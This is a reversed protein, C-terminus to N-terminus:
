EYPVNVPVFSPATTGTGLQGSDNLGWTWLTQDAKLAVSHASGAAVAKWTQLNGVQTPSRSDTGGTGLQGKENLGWAWLTGDSHVGISHAAGGAVMGWNTDTGIQVPSIQQTSGNNGLQGDTNLGWAYLTGGSRIALSHNAGAAVSTFNLTGIRVPATVDAGQAANGVQGYTNAGWAWLSGDKQIGLSHSEGAAVALWAATGIQFPAQKDATTGTGLQGNANRGWTYLLGATGKVAVVHARGAAVSVWDKGTGIQTPVLKELLTGDGLQGNQNWGWSWLTGDTRIAVVFQDGVAVQKWLTSNGSVAVPAKRDTSTGDGLQGHINSGWSHLKNDAKMAVTQLGGAAIQTWPANVTINITGVVTGVTANITETGVAKATVLGVNTVAAVGSGGSKTTWALTSEVATTLTKTSGDSYTGTATLQQTANVAITTPGAATVAISKLTVVAPTSSGGGGGGGCAALV